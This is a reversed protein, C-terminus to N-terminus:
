EENHSLLVIEKKATLIQTLLLEDERIDSVFNTYKDLRGIVTYIQQDIDYKWLEEDRNMSYIINNKIIFRRSGAQQYLEKIPRKQGNEILWFNNDNDLYVIQGYSTKDAWKIEASIHKTIKHTELHYSVLQQQGGKRITVLVKNGGSWHFLKPVAFKLPYNIITKELLVKTLIADASVLVSEGTESWQFSDISIGMAFNTLQSVHEKSKIWIQDTGSRNSVFAILEGQPQFQADSDQFITKVM